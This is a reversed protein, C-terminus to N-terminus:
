DNMKIFVKIEKYPDYYFNLNDSREYLTTQLELYNKFYDDVECNYSDIKTPDGRIIMRPNCIIVDPQENLMASIHNEEIKELSILTEVIFDEFHNSPHVIYSYNPKQLYELIILYDLALITYDDTFYSDIEQSLNYLPYEESVEHYNTLNYYSTSWMEIITLTLSATVFLTVLIIENRKLLKSIFHSIFYLFFFLHHYYNHDALFYFALSALINLNLFSIYKNIEKEQINNKLYLFSSIFISSYLYYNFDFYKRYFVKLEYLNAYNSKSYGLPIQYYTAFYIDFLDRQVYLILFFVHPILFGAALPFVSIFFIKVNKRFILLVYPALFIITGQNVLTSFAILLGILFLIKKSNPKTEFLLYSISIFILSYLESYGSVAWAQSLLLLLFISAVLSPYIKKTKLHVTCFLIVSLIFLIVDNFIKFLIYSNDVISSFFYYLYLFIPGKSEWQTENPIFGDGIESSAVLYSAIDWEITEFNLYYNQTVLTIVFLFFISLLYKFKIYFYEDNNVQSNDSFLFIFMLFIITILLSTANILESFFTKLLVPTFLTLFILSYQKKEM